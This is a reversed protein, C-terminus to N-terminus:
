QLEHLAALKSRLGLLPLTTRTHRGMALPIASREAVDIRAPAKTGCDLLAQSLDRLSYDLGRFAHLLLIALQPVWRYFLRVVSIEAHGAILRYRHSHWYRDRGHCQGHRCRDCRRHSCRHSDDIR